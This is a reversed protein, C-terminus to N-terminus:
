FSPHASHLHQVERKANPRVNQFLCESFYAAVTESLVKEKKMFCCVCVCPSCLLRHHPVRIGRVGGSSPCVLSLARNGFLIDQFIDPLPDEELLSVLAGFPSKRRVM